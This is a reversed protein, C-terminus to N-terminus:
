NKQIWSFMLAITTNEFYLSLKDLDLAKNAIDEFFKNEVSISLNDSSLEDCSSISNSFTESTFKECSNIDKDLEEITYENNYSINDEEFFYKNSEVYDEIPK